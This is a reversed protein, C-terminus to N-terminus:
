CWSLLFSRIGAYHENVTFNHPPGKGRLLGTADDMISPQKVRWSTRHLPDGFHLFIKMCLLINYFLLTNFDKSISPFQFKDDLVLSVGHYRSSEKFISLLSQFKQM